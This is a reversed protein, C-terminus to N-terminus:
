RQMFKLLEEKEVRWQRGVKFGHLEDNALLKMLTYRSVMLADQVESFTMILPLDEAATYYDYM